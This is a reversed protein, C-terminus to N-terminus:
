VGKFKMYFTINIQLYTDKLLFTDLVKVAKEFRVEKKFSLDSSKLM